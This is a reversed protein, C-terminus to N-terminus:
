ATKALLHILALWSTREMLLSLEVMMLDKQNPFPDMLPWSLYIPSHALHHHQKPKSTTSSALDGVSPRDPATLGCM